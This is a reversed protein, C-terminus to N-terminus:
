RVKAQSLELVDHSTRLHRRINGVWHTSFPDSSGTEVCRTCVLLVGGARLVGVCVQAAALTTYQVTCAFTNHVTTTDFRFDRSLARAGRANGNREAEVHAQAQALRTRVVQTRTRTPLARM